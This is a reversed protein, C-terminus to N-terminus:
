QGLFAAKFEVRGLINVVKQKEFELRCLIAPVISCCRHLGHCLQHFRISDWCKILTTM